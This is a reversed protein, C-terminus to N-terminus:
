NQMKSALEAETVLWARIEKKMCVQYKVFNEWIQM